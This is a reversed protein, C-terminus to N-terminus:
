SGRDLAVKLEASLREYALPRLAGPDSYPNSFSYIFFLILGTFASFISLLVINHRRPPFTHYGVSILIVGAIAAFWFMGQITNAAHNERMDRTEGINHIRDLMHTRLSEERPTAPNLDLVGQYADEWRLWATSDLRGTDGLEQWEKDIVIDVYDKLAVQVAPDKGPGYREMDFFLDAIANTERAVETDLQQYEVMEQAFVLALILGHLASVRFIVSGALDKTDSAQEKGGLRRAVAYSLLSLAVTALMFVFGLFFLTLM